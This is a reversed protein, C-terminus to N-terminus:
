KALEPNKSIRGVISMKTPYWKQQNGKVAIVYDAKKDIIKKVIKKQTAIADITM